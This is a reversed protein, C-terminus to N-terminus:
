KVRVVRIDANDKLKFLGRGAGSVSAKIVKFYKYIGNLNNILYGLIRLTTSSWLMKAMRKQM